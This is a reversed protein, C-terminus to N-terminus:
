FGTAILVIKIEGKKLTKNWVAGFIVKAKPNIRQTITKVTDEIETLTLDEGGSINFLVGKAGAISYDFFPSSLVKNIAQETRKEGKGEGIGFMARGSNKIVAQIDAFDLNIIGPCLILDSIGQVAQRLVDDCVSFASLLSINEEIQSLLKDNSIVILTDVKDKLAEIGKEAIKVRQSGEFSFPTTIVAITLAGQKKAIEAIIPTAGTGSGGGFGATLFVIDAEKLAEAIEEKSEIAAQEGIKPNMGAGLGGTLNKGIWIRSDTKAKKLDQIDCNVAILDVGRINFSKMRSLTNCGAGGIGIIKINTLNKM